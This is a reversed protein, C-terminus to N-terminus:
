YSYRKAMEKIKSTLIQDENELDEWTLSKHEHANVKSEFDINDLLGWSIDVGFVDVLKKFETKSKILDELKFRYDAKEEIMENWIYYAYMADYLENRKPPASRENFIFSYACKNLAYAMSAITELPDRTLHILKKVEWKYRGQTSHQWSVVGDEGWKEYGLKLGCKELLGYVKRSGSRPACSVLTKIPRKAQELISCWRVENSALYLYEQPIGNFSSKKSKFEEKVRTSIFSVLKAVNHNSLILTRYKSDMKEIIDDNFTMVGLGCNDPFIRKRIGAGNEDMATINMFVMFVDFCVNTMVDHMIIVGSMDMHPMWAALDDRVAEFTHNGDIHLLDIKKDWTRAAETSENNIFVVNDLEKLNKEAGYNRNDITYVTGTNDKALWYASFGKYTGIEVTVKPNLEKILWQTFYEHGKWMSGVDSWDM